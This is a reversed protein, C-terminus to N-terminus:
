QYFYHFCAFMYYSTYLWNSLRNHIWRYFHINHYMYLYNHFYNCQRIYCKM